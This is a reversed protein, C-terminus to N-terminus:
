SVLGVVGAYLPTPADHHAAGAMLGAPSARKRAEQFQLFDALDCRRARRLEGALGRPVLRFRAWARSASPSCGTPHTHGGRQVRSRGPESGLMVRHHPRATGTPLCKADPMQMHMHQVWTCTGPAHLLAGAACRPHLAFSWCLRRNPGLLASSCSASKTRLGAHVDQNHCTPCKRQFSTPGLM